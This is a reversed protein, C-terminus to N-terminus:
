HQPITIGTTSSNGFIYTYAAYLPSVNLVTGVKLSQQLDPSKVLAVALPPLHHPMAGRLFHTHTHTSKNNMSSASSSTNPPFINKNSVNATPLDKRINSDEEEDDEDSDRLATTNSTITDAPTSTVATSKAGTDHDRHTEEHNSDVATATTDTDNNEGTIAKPNSSLSVLFDYLEDVTRSGSMVFRSSVESTATAPATVPLVTTSKSSPSSASSSKSESASSAITTGNNDDSQSKFEKSDGQSNTATVTVVARTPSGKGHPHTSNSMAGMTASNATTTDTM